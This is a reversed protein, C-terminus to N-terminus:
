GGSLSFLVTSIVKEVKEECILDCESLSIWVIWLYAARYMKDINRLKKKNWRVPYPAIEVEWIPLLLMATNVFGSKLGLINVSM